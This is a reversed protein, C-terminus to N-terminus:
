QEISSEEEDEVKKLLIPEEFSKALKEQLIRKVAAIYKLAAGGWWKMLSFAKEPEFTLIFVLSWFLYYLTHTVLFHLAVATGCTMFVVVDVSFGVLWFLKKRM